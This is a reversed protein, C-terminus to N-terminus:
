DVHREFEKLANHIHPIKEFDRLTIEMGQLARLREKAKEISAQFEELRKYVLFKSLTNM